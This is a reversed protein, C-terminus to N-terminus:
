KNSLRKMQKLLSRAEKHFDAFPDEALTKLVAACTERDGLQLL